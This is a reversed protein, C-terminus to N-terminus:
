LYQRKLREFVSNAPFQREKDIGAATIMANWFHVTSWGDMSLENEELLRQYEWWPVPFFPHAPLASVSAHNVAATFLDPGIEGHVVKQLDKNAIAALCYALVDSKQPLKFLATAVRFRKDQSEEIFVAEDSAIEFGAVCCVDTDAWWGGIEHILTYRFVDSFGAYSGVNFDGSAYRFIKTRPVVTAADRLVVGAPVGTPEDYVYLHSAFGHHVFSSICLRELTSLSEGHWFSNIITAGSM